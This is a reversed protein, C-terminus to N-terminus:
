YSYQILMEMYSKLCLRLLKEDIFCLLLGDISRHFLVTGMILYKSAELLLRRREHNELNDPCCEHQLYYIIDQIGLIIKWILM